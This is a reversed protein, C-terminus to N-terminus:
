KYKHSYLEGVREPQTISINGKVASCSRTIVQSFCKLRHSLFCLHQLLLQLTCGSKLLRLSHWCGCIYKYSYVYINTPRAICHGEFMWATIADGCTQVLQGRSVVTVSSRLLLSKQVQEVQEGSWYSINARQLTSTLVPDRNLLDNLAMVLTHPLNIALSSLCRFCFHTESTNTQISCGWSFGWTDM